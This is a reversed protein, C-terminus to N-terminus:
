AQTWHDATTFITIWVCSISNSWRTIRHVSICMIRSCGCSFLFFRCIVNNLKHKHNTEMHKHNTEM